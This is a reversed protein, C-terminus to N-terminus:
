KAVVSWLGPHHIRVQRAVDLLTMYGAPFSEGCEKALFELRALQGFSIRRLQFESDTWQALGEVLAQGEYAPHFDPSSYFCTWEVEDVDEQLMRVPDTEEQLKRIREYEERERRRDEKTCVSRDQAASMFHNYRKGFPLWPAAGAARLAGTLFAFGVRCPGYGYPPPILRQRVEEWGWLGSQRVILTRVREWEARKQRVLHGWYEAFFEPDQELLLIHAAGAAERPADFWLFCEPEPKNLARYLRRVAKEAAPRDVRSTSIVRQRWFDRYAPLKNLQSATLEM